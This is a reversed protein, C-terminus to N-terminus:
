SQLCKLVALLQRNLALERGVHKRELADIQGVLKPFGGLARGQIKRSTRCADTVLVVPSEEVRSVTRQPYDLDNQADRMAGAVDVQGCVFPELAKAVFSRSSDVPD